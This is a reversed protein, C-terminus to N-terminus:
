SRADTPKRDAATSRRRVARVISDLGDPFFLIILLLTVGLVAQWTYPFSTSAFMRIMEIIISGVFVLVVSSSNGLIAILVLEGSKSWYALEPAAHGTLFGILAGGIGGLLGCWVFALWSIVRANGGLYMVRIDNRGVANVALGIWSRQLRATILMVIGAAAVAVLYLAILMGDGEPQLTFFRPPPISLGDSGGLSQNKVLFGYFMMSFALSLMAFFIGTFRVLFLGILGSLLMAALGACLLTLLADAPGLAQPVLWAAYAGICYPLAQGFTVNGSRMLAVIGSAAIGNALALALPFLLWSPLLSALALLLVASAIIRHQRNSSM